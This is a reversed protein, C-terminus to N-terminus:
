QRNKLNKTKHMEDYHKRCVGARWGFFITAKNRCGLVLCRKRIRKYFEGGAEDHLGFEKRLINKSIQVAIGILILIMSVYVIAKVAVATYNVSEGGQINSPITTM